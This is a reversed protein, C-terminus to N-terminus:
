AIGFDGVAAENRSLPGTYRELSVTVEFPTEYTIVQRIIVVVADSGELFVSPM